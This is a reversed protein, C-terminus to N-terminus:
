SKKFVRWAQPIQFRRSYTKTHVFCKSFPALVVCTKKFLIAPSLDRSCHPRFVNWPHKWVGGAYYQRPRLGSVPCSTKETLNSLLMTKLWRVDHHKVGRWTTVTRRNAGDTVDAVVHSARTVALRIDRAPQTVPTFLIGEIVGLIATHRTVTVAVPWIIQLTVRYANQLSATKPVYDQVPWKLRARGLRITFM